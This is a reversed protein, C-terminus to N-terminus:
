LDNANGWLRLRRFWFLGAGNKAQRKRLIPPRWGVSFGATFEYSEALGLWRKEIELFDRRVVSVNTQEAFSRAEAARRYCEAARPSANQLM